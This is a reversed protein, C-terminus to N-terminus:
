ASAVPVFSRISSSADYLVLHGVNDMDAAIVHKVAGRFAARNGSVASIAVDLRQPLPPAPTGAMQLAAPSGAWFKDFGTM